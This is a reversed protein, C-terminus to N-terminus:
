SFKKYPSYIARVFASEVQTLPVGMMLKGNVTPTVEREVLRRVEKQTM